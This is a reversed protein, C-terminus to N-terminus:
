MDVESELTFDPASETLQAQVLMSALLAVSRTAKNARCLIHGAVQNCCGVKRGKEYEKTHHLDEKKIPLEQRKGQKKTEKSCIALFIINSGDFIM